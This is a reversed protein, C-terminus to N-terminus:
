KEKLQYKIFKIFSSDQLNVFTKSSSDKCCIVRLLQPHIITQFMNKRDGKDCTARSCYIKKFLITYLVQFEACKGMRLKGDEDRRWLHMACPMDSLGGELNKCIVKRLRQLILHCDQNLTFPQSNGHILCLSTSLITFRLCVHSLHKM